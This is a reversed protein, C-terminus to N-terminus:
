WRVVYVWVEVVVEELCSGGGGADQILVDGFFLRADGFHVVLEIGVMRAYM